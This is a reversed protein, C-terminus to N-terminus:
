ARRSAIREAIWGDIEGEVWAICRESIAVPAPFRGERIYAYLTSRSLGTRAKVQELRIFSPKFDEKGTNM